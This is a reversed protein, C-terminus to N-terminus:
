ILDQFLGEPVENTTENGIIRKVFRLNHTRKRLSVSVIGGLDIRDIVVRGSSDTAHIINQNDLLIGVHIIKGEKDDFFALDGCQANQLFEILVGKHAQQSADRPLAYNCLKFAMQSLGSCDIGTISRGGWLYPAHMYLLANEKIQEATLILDSFNGKKGKFQGETAGVKMIGGKLDVLESGVPLPMEDSEFLIKSLHNTAFYKTTKKYERRTVAKLQSHKCWGEYGDWACRIRAWERNNIELIEAKEGYLLQSTQEARHNPESRVPM